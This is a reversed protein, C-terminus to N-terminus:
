RCHSIVQEQDDVGLGVLDQAAHVCSSGIECEHVREGALFTGLASGGDQLVFAGDREVVRAHRAAAGPVVVQLGPESGILAPTLSL